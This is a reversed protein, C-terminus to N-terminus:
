PGNPLFLVRVPVSRPKEDRNAQQEAAREIPDAVVPRLDATVPTWGM